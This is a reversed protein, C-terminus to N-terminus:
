AAVRRELTLGAVNSGVEILLGRRDHFEATGDSSWLRFIGRGVEPFCFFGHQDVLETRVPPGPQPHALYVPQGPQASPVSGSLCFLRDADSLATARPRLLAVGRVSVGSGAPGSCVMTMAQLPHTPIPGGPPSDAAWEMGYLPATLSRWGPGAPGTTEMLYRATLPADVQKVAGRGGFYFRGGSVTELLLGIDAGPDCNVSFTLLQAAPAV